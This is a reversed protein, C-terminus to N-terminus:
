KNSLLYVSHTTFVLMTVRVGDFGCGKCGATTVRVRRARGSRRARRHRAGRAGRRLIDATPIHRNKGVGYLPINVAGIFRKGNHGMVALAVGALAVNAGTNIDCVRPIPCLCACIIRLHFLVLVLYFVQRRLNGTERRVVRFEPLFDVLEGLVIGLHFVRNGLILRTNVSQGLAHRSGLGLNVAQLGGGGLMCGLNGVKVGLVLIQLSLDGAVVASNGCQLGLVSCLICTKIAKIDFKFAMICADSLVRCIDSLGDLVNLVIGCVDCDIGPFQCVMGFLQCVM